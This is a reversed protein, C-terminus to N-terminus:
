AKNAMAADISRLERLIARPVGRNQLLERCPAPPRRRHRSTLSSERSLSDALYSATAFKSVVELPAKLSM